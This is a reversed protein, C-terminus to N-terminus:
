QFPLFGIPELWRVNSKKRIKKLPRQTQVLVVLGGEEDPKPSAESHM